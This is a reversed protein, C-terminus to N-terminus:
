CKKARCVFDFLNLNINDNFDTIVNQSDKNFNSYNIKPLDHSKLSKKKNIKLLNNKTLCIKSNILSNIMKKDDSFDLNSSM